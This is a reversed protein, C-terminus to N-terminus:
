VALYELTSGELVTLAGADSTAQAWRFQFEGSVTVVVVGDFQITAIGTTTGAKSTSPPVVAGHTTTEVDTGAAAGAVADRRRTWRWTATGSFAFDYKYDMTANATLIAALFRIRYQGPALTVKLAGDVALTTTSTRAEDATKKVLAFGGSGLGSLATNIAKIDAGIAQVVALLRAALTAM